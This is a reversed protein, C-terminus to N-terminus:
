DYPVIEFRGKSYQPNRKKKNLMFQCFGYKNPDCIRQDVGGFKWVLTYRTYKKAPKDEKIFGSDILRQRDEKSMKEYSMTEKIKNTLLKLKDVQLKYNM